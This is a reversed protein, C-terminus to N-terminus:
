RVRPEFGPELAQLVNEHRVPKDLRGTMTMVFTASNVQNLGGHTSAMKIFHEYGAYGSYYGDKISLIVDPVNLFRGHLADWVRRPADPWAHDLTAGFWTEDDTFGEGDMKGESKLGDIVPQYDLVDADLPVYRVRGGRCEIAARGRASEIISREGEQYIALEIQEHRCLAAAVGGPHRTHIGSTTVLANYEIVCDRDGKIRDKVRFGAAKLMEALLASVSPTYNHGHDAMMSIKIAGRREYLLQLCLQRAGDLVKDAGAKGHKCVMSSASSLYVIPVRDPSEEIARRARELEAAYWPDPNIFSVGQEV